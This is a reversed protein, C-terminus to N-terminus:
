HYLPTLISHQLYLTPVYENKKELQYSIISFRLM